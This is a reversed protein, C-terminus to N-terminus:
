RQNLYHQEFKAYGNKCLGGNGLTCVQAEM